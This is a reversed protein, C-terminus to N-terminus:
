GTSSERPDFVSNAKEPDATILDDYYAVAAPDIFSQNNVSAFGIAWGATVANFTTVSGDDERIVGMLASLFPSIDLGFDVYGQAVKMKGMGVTESDDVQSNWEEDELLTGHGLEGGEYTLNMVFMGSRATMVGGVMQTSPIYHRRKFNNISIKPGIGVFVGIDELGVKTKNVHVDASIQTTYTDVKVNRGGRQQYTTTKTTKSQYNEVHYATANVTVMKPDLKQKRGDFRIVAYPQLVHYRWPDFHDGVGFGVGANFGVELTVVPLRLRASMGLSMYPFSSRDGERYDTVRYNGFGFNINPHFRAKIVSSRQAGIALKSIPASVGFYVHSGWARKGAFNPVFDGETFGIDEETLHVEGFAVKAEFMSTIINFGKWSDELLIRNGFNPTHIEFGIGAHQKDIKAQNLRYQSQASVGMAIAFFFVFLSFERM